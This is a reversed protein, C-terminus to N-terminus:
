PFSGSDDGAPRGSSVQPSVKALARISRRDPGNPFNFLEPLPIYLVDRAARPALGTGEAEGCAARCRQLVCRLAMSHNSKRDVM